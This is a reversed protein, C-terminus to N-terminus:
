GTPASTKMAEAVKRAHETAKQLVTGADRTTDEGVIAALYETRKAEFSRAAEASDRAVTAQDRGASGAAHGFFAGVITGIAASASSAVAPQDSSVSILAVIAIILVALLGLLVIIGGPGELASGLKKFV